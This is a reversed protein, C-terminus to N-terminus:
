PGPQRAQLALLLDGRPAEPSENVDVAISRALLDAHAELAHASSALVLTAEASPPEGSSPAPAHVRAWLGATPNDDTVFYRGTEPDLFRTNLAALLRQALEGAETSNATSRLVLLGEIMLAYDLATAPAPLHALHRLHGDEGLLQTRIFGLQAQAAETLRADSLEAGARALASLLLGHAAATANEAHSPAVRERRLKLLNARAEALGAAAIPDALYPLNKGVTEIGPLADDALNGEATIGFAACVADADAKNLASEIERRTWLHAAIQAETTADLVAAYGGHDLALSDLVFHLAGRAADVFLPEPSTKAADLLALALRAQDTLNKQFYPLRWQTDSAYRFFGGDLPDRVAGHAIARLTKLALDRNAPRRLLARLLEPELQKPPEGFGGHVSDHLALWAEIGSALTREADAAGLPPPAETYRAALIAAVAEDAKTRQAAPDAKWGAAARRAVTLFGEKGWEETPPLYNAGEFPKLEPTLWLNLPLGRLQKLTQLYVQYLATLQPQENADALVCIFAENLFAATDPNSFTQRTMARSLESTALGVSLFIPKQEARARAFAAEGWPMWDIASDAHSRVFASTADALAPSAPRATPAFSVVFAAALPFFRRM